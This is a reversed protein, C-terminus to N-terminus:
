EIRPEGAPAVVYAVHGRVGSLGVILDIWGGELYAEKTKRFGLVETYFRVARELNTVVINIHDVARVM